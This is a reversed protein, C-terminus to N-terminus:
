RTLTVEIDALGRQSRPYSLMLAHHMASLWVAARERDFRGEEPPPLETLLARVPLPLATRRPAEPAPAPMAPAADAPARAGPFRIVGAADMPPNADNDM